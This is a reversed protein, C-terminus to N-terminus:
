RVRLIASCGAYYVFFHKPKEEVVVADVDCPYIYILAKKRSKGRFYWM